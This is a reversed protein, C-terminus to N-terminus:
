CLCSPTLVVTAPNVVLVPSRTGLLFKLVLQFSPYNPGPVSGRWSGMSCFGARSLDLSSTLARLANQGMSMLGFSREQCACHATAEERLGCRCPTLALGAGVMELENVM